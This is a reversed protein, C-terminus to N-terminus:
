VDIVDTDVEVADDKPDVPVADVSDPVHRGFMSTMAMALPVSLVMAPLAAGCVIAAGAAGMVLNTAFLKRDGDRTDDFKRGRIKRIAYNACLMPGTVFPAAIAAAGLTALRIAKM